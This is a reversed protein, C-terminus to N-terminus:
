THIAQILWAASEFTVGDATTHGAITARLENRAQERRADDLEELMWGMLGLVFAFADDTDNGFWMPGAIPQSDIDTFGAAILVHRTREPDAFAFPGRAGIPPTPLDRGVALAHSIARIWENQEPGQWVLMVLRGGPRLAGAINSFAAPPDGFFMTGTRSIAVDFSEAGFPYVQADAQEFAVNGLGRQAALRRALEIM